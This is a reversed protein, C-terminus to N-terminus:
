YINEKEQERYEIHLNNNFWHIFSFFTNLIFYIYICQYRYKGLVNFTTETCHYGNQCIDLIQADNEILFAYREEFESRNGAAAKEFKKRIALIYLM